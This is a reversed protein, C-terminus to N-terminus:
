GRCHRDVVMPIPAGQWEFRDAQKLFDHALEHRTPLIADYRL